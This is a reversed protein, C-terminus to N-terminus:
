VAPEEVVPESIPAVYSRSMKINGYADTLLVTVIDFPDVGVHTSLLEHYKREASAEDNFKNEVKYAWGDNEKNHYFWTVFYADM